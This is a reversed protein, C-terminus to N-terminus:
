TRLQPVPRGAHIHTHCQKCVVLTKRRLAIMRKVWEPKEKRGRWRHKLDALKRIHHVECSKRSGCLECENAQLRQILDTRSSLAVKRRGNNDDLPERGPKIVKLPIAGWYISRTGQQTPIEVQLIKYRYGDVTRTGQYRRYIRVVSTKFKHALTKVLAMEMTYKLKALHSRDTAFKYYEAMGRFCQQYVDIIQADSYYLLGAEHIPKGKRQYRKIAKEIRGYPIGLRIGGNLSRAKVQYDSRISVTDNTQYVSIAYGLFHAHNTRAHTILTKDQNLELQLTEQLFSTLRTKIAEAEVKPGIFGLTFDDAYRVYKLRRFHPDHTEKSPMQRRQWELNRALDQDGKRRASRIHHSLQNYQPNVARQKGRSYQPKLEDEVFTDLQHLYINSLIPSLLGGQPVGSYSRHYRWDDLYGAELSLRILNLFRGDQIDKSLIDLLRTQNINDFCGRIDGEILWTTGIFERTITSLATHCGRGSRFGHSSNRFRLDYYAELLCRLVEQVLKDSWCPISLPRTRGDAKPIQTRRSPRFRFREYRLDEIIRQIRGLNMGDATEDTTGPTLAGKNRSIKDYASLFLDESYLCRYVRTLPARKQGLKHVAQLIQEAKQM